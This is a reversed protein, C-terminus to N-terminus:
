VEKLGYDKEEVTRIFKVGYGILSAAIMGSTIYEFPRMAWRIEVTYVLILLSFCFGTLKGLPNPPLLLHRHTLLWGNGLIIVLDRLIIPGAVWWSLGRTAALLAVISCISIKDVVPDLIRGLLTEKHFRRALYGDLIDTVGAGLMLSLAWGTQDTVLLYLIPPLLCLRLMSLLNPLNLVEGRGKM